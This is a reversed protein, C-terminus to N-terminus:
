VSHQHHCGFELLTSRKLIEFGSSCEQGGEKGQFILTLAPMVLFGNMSRIKGKTKTMWVRLYRAGRKLKYDNFKSEYLGSIQLRPLMLNVCFKM